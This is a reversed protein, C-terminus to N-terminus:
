ARDFDAANYSVHCKPNNNIIGRLSFVLSSRACYFTIQPALFSQPIMQINYGKFLVHMPQQSVFACYVISKVSEPIVVKKLDPNDFARYGISTVPLNEIQEPIVVSTANGIYKDIRIGKNQSLTYKFENNTASTTQQTQVPSRKTMLTEIDAKIRNEIEVKPANRRKQIVAKDSNVTEIDNEIQARLLALDDNLKSTYKLGNTVKKDSISNVLTMLSVIPGREIRSQADNAVAIESLLNEVSSNLENSYNEATLSHVENVWDLIEEHGHCLSKLSDIRQSIYAPCIKIDTDIKQGIQQAKEIDKFITALATNMESRYDSSNMFSTLREIEKVLNSSLNSFNKLNQIRYFFSSPYNYCHVKCHYNNRVENVANAISEISMLSTPLYIDELGSCGKFPRPLLAGGGFEKVTEPIHIARLSKCNEFAGYGISTVSNPLTISTLSSCNEFANVGISTVSDPIIISTLSSCGRFVFNDIFTVGKPITISELSSCNEFASHGISTVGKPIEISTLSTCKKFANYAISTVSNPLTISTLSSCAYFANSGISTVSYPIDIATLSSCDEFANSGISTVSYPIDIATLSSCGKFANSGISTVSNPIHIQTLSKCNKFTGDFVGGNIKTVSAPINVSVLNNNNKFAHDSIENVPSGNISDPIRVYSMSGIYKDITIGSSLFQNKYEFDMYVKPM